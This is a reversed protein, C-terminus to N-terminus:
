ALLSKRPEEMKRDVQFSHRRNEVKDIFTFNQFFLSWFGENVKKLSHPMKERAVNRNIDNM